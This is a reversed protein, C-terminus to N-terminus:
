RRPDRSRQRKDTHFDRARTTHRGIIVATDPVPRPLIRAMAAAREHCRTAPEISFRRRRRRRGLATAADGVNWRRLVDCVPGRTSRARERHVSVDTQKNTHKQDRWVNEGVGRYVTRLFYCMRSFADALCEGATAGREVPPLRFPATLSDYPLRLPAALSGYPLRLPGTQITEKKGGQCGYSIQLPATYTYADSSYTINKSTWGFTM